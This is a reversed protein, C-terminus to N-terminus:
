PALREAAQFGVHLSWLFWISLLVVTGLTALVFRRQGPGPSGAPLLRLVFIGWGILAVASLLEVLRIGGLATSPAPAVAFSLIACVQWFGLTALTVLIFLSLRNMCRAHERAHERVRM